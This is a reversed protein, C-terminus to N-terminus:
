YQFKDNEEEWATELGKYGDRFIHGDKMYDNFAEVSHFRCDDIAADIYLHEKGYDNVTLQDQYIIVNGEKIFMIITDRPEPGCELCDIIKDPNNQVVICAKSGTSLLEVPLIEGFRTRWTKTDIYEGHEVEAIVIKEFETGKLGDFAEEVDRIVDDREHFSDEISDDLYVRLM